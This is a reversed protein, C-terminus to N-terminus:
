LEKVLTFNVDEALISWTHNEVDWDFESKAELVALIKFKM